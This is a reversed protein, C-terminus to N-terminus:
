EIKIYKYRYRKDVPVFQEHTFVKARKTTYVWKGNEGQYMETEQASKTAPIRLLYYNPTNNM